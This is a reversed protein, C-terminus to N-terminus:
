DNLSVAHAKHALTVVVHSQQTAVYENLNDLARTCQKVIHDAVFHTTFLLLQTMEEDFNLNVDRGARLRRRYYENSNRRYYYGGVAEISEAM